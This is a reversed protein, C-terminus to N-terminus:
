PDTMHVKNSGNPKELLPSINTRSLFFSPIELHSNYYYYAELEEEKKKGGRECILQHIM